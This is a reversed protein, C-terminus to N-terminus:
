SLGGPTTAPSQVPPRVNLTRQDDMAAEKSRTGHQHERGHTCTQVHGRGRECTDVRTELPKFVVGRYSEM